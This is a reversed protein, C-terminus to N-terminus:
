CGPSRGARRVGAGREVGAVTLPVLPSQSGGRFRNRFRTKRIGM